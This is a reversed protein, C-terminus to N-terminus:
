TKNNINKRFDFTLNNTKELNSIIKSKIDAQSSQIFFIYLFFIVIKKKM